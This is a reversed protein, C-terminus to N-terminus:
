YVVELPMEAWPKPKYPRVVLEEPSAYSAVHNTWGLDKDPQWMVLFEVSGPELRNRIKYCLRGFADTTLSRVWTGHVAVDLHETSAIM